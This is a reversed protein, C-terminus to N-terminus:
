TWPRSRSQCLQLGEIPFCLGQDAGQQESTLVLRGPIAVLRWISDQENPIQLVQVETSRRSPCGTSVSTRLETNLLMSTTESRSLRTARSQSTESTASRPGIVQAVRM